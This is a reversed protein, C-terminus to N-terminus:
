INILEINLSQYYLQMKSQLASPLLILILLNLNKKFDFVLKGDALIPPIAPMTRKNFFRSIILWYTKPATNPNDLKASMKTIRKEKAQIILRM